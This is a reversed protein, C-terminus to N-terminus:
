SSLFFFNQSHIRRRSISCSWHMMSPIGAKSDLLVPNSDWGRWNHHLCLITVATNYVCIDRSNSWELPWIFSIWWSLFFYFICKNFSKTPVYTLWIYFVYITGWNHGECTNTHGQSGESTWMAQSTGPSRKLQSDGHQISIIDSKVPPTQLTNDLHCLIFCDRPTYFDSSLHISTGSFKELPIIFLTGIVLYVLYLLSNLSFDFTVDWNYFLDWAYLSYM